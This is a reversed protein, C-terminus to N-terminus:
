TYNDPLDNEILVCTNNPEIMDKLTIFGQAFSDILKINEEKM